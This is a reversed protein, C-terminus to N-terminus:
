AEEDGNASRSAGVFAFADVNRHGWEGAAFAPTGLVM